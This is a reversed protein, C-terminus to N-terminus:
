SRPKDTNHCCTCLSYNTCITPQISDNALFDCTANNTSHTRSQEVNDQTHQDHNVNSGFMDSNLCNQIKNTYNGDKLEKHCPKCM